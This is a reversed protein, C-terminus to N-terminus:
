RWVRRRRSLAVNTALPSRSNRRVGDTAGTRIDRPQSVLLSLQNWFALLVASRIAAASRLHVIPRERSYSGLDRYFRRSSFDLHSNRIRFDIRGVDYFRPVRGDRLFTSTAPLLFRM